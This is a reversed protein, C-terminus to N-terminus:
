LSKTLTITQTVGDWDVKAGFTEGIFRLPVMTRGNIICPPTELRVKAPAQQVREILADYTRGYTRHLWLHILMNDFRLQIEEEKAYWEVKAGFTEALFRLPVVTRGNIISPPTDLFISDRRKDDTTIIAAKLSGIQLSIILEVPLVELTIPIHVTENNPDSTELRITSKHIGISIDESDIYVQIKKIEKSKLSISSTNVTLWPPHELVTCTLVSYPKGSNEISFSNTCSLGKVVISSLSTPSISVVPDVPNIVLTIPLSFKAINPDNTIFELSSKYNGPLLSSGDLLFSIKKSQNSKLVIPERSFIIWDTDSSISIELLSNESGTNLLAIQFMETAGTQLSFSSKNYQIEFVPNDRIISYSFPIKVIENNPDNTQIVFVDSYDGILQNQPSFQVFFSDTKGAEIRCTSPTITLFSPTNSFTIDLLTGSVGQNSISFEKKVIDGIYCQGFNIQDVDIKFKPLNEQIEVQVHMRVSKDNSTIVLYDEHIGAKLRSALLTVKVIVKQDPYVEFSQKDTQLWLPGQINSVRLVDNGINLIHFYKDLRDTPQICGFDIKTPSIDLIPQKSLVNISAFLNKSGGDSKVQLYSKQFGKMDSTTHAIFELTISSEAEITFTDATTSIWSVDKEISAHLTKTGTNAVLLEVTKKDGALVDGFHISNQEISLIPKGEELIFVCDAYIFSNEMSLCQFTYLVTYNDPYIKNTDIYLTIEKTEKPEVVFETPKLTAWYQNSYGIWKTADKDSIQFRFQLTYAYVKGKILTGFDFHFTESSEYAKSFLPISLFSSVLFICSVFLTILAKWYHSSTTIALKM